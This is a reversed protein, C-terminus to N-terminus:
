ALVRRVSGGGGGKLAQHASRSAALREWLHKSHEYHDAREGGGRERARERGRARESERESARERARESERERERQRERDRARESERERCAAPLLDDRLLM